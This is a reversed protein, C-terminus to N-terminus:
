AKPWHSIIPDKEIYKDYAILMVNIVALAAFGAIGTIGVLLDSGGLVLMISIGYVGNLTGHTISAAIVSKSKIRIYNLLPTFLICWAIMMLAGVRPHQPYNHGQLILPAHWVGWIFGIAMSAKWFGLPKFEELLFGRWGLEEGFAAVANVTAGALLGQLLAMWIPHVPMADIQEKLQMIQEPTLVEKFREFMGEMNPAYEVGPILLSIGFTLFALVAPAIWGIFFWRNLKFSIGFNEKVKEKYIIKQVFLATVGPVLMYGVGLAIWSLRTLSGGGSYFLVAMGWDLSFTIAMFISIKKANLM